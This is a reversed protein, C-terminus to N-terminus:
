RLLLIFQTLSTCSYKSGVKLGSARLVCVSICVCPNRTEGFRSEYDVSSNRQYNISLNLFGGEEFQGNTCKTECVSSLPLQYAQFSAEKQKSMTVM